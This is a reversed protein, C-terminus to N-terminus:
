EMAFCGAFIMEIQRPEIFGIQSHLTLKLIIVTANAVELGVIMIGVSAVKPQPENLKCGRAKCKLNGPRGVFVNFNGIFQWCFPETFHLPDHAHYKTHSVSVGSTSATPSPHGSVRSYEGHYRVDRCECKTGPATTLLHLLDGRYRYPRSNGRAGRVSGYPRSERM